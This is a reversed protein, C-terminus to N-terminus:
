RIKIIYRLEVYAPRNEVQQERDDTHLTRATRRASNLPFFGGGQNGMGDGWDDIQVETGDPGFSLWHTGDFTSWGHRHSIAVTDEGGTILKRNNLEAPAGRVFVGRLDPLQTGGTSEDADFRLRSGSPNQQGDCIAWGEPVDNDAGFYAVITGIPLEDDASVGGSSSPFLVVSRVQVLAEERVFYQWVALLALLLLLLAAAGSLATVAPENRFKVLIKSWAPM